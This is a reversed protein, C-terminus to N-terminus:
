CMRLGLGRALDMAVLVGAQQPLRDLVHAMMPRGSLSMLPKEGGGMCTARGGAVILAPIRLPLTM